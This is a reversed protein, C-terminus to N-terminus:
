IITKGFPIRNEQLIAKLYKESCQQCHFCIADYNPNKRVRMECSAVSFDNETKQIWEKTLERM